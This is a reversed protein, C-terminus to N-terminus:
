KRYSLVDPLQHPYSVNPQYAFNEKITRATVWRELFGKGGPKDNTGSKRAGGFPQQNVVAGTSKDNVYLMGSAYRLRDAATTLARRDQCFISGTLGYDTGKDIQECVDEWFNPTSDDYVFVTLIPGFIEDRMMTCDADKAVVITPEVFWGHTDDAKGGIVFELQKDRAVNLYNVCKRYSNEDIVACVFSSFDDPQGMKLQSTLEALGSKIESWKSKPVFMRSCASCKQGQYEFASRVSSAIVSPMHASPHVLHFNKGGTEGSIRPFNRYDPLHEAVNKWISQFTRTSGTFAVGALSKHRLVRAIQDPQSPIFNVVGPPLGADEFLEMLYYNSLAATPSPKWLVTNGMLAPTAALNAAIASFNFPAIATVFGELPRYETMNWISLDAPSRPQENLMESAYQTHFRLFDPAENSVDIEAQYVNKSQGIMCAAHNKWRHSTTLLTAAKLMIAARHQFPMRSWEKHAELSSKVAEAMLEDDAEYLEVLTTKNESPISIKTPTGKYYRKGNIVVPIKHVTSRIEKCADAVLRREESGPAFTKTPENQVNPVLTAGFTNGLFIASTRRLM